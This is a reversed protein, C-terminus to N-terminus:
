NKEIEGITDFVKCIAGLKKIKLKKYFFILALAKAIHCKQV